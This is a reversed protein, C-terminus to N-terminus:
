LNYIKLRFLYSTESYIFFTGTRVASTRVNSNQIEHISAPCELSPQFECAVEYHQKNNLLPTTHAYTLNFNQAKHSCRNCLNLVVSTQKRHEHTAPLKSGSAGFPMPGILGVVMGPSVATGITSM